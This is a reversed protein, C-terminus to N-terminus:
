AFVKGDITCIQGLRNYHYGDEYCPDHVFEMGGESYLRGHMREPDNPPFELHWQHERRSTFYEYQRQASQARKLDHPRPPRTNDPNELYSDLRQMAEEYSLFGLVRHWEEIAKEPDPM